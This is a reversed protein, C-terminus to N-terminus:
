DGVITLQNVVAMTGNDDEIITEYCIPAVFMSIIDDAVLDATVTEILTIEAHAVTKLQRDIDNCAYQMSHTKGYM